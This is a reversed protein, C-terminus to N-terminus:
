KVELSKWGALKAVALAECLTVAYGKAQEEAIAKVVEPPLRREFYARAFELQEDVEKALRRLKTIAKTVTTEGGEETVMGDTKDPM